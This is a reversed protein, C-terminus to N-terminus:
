ERGLLQHQRYLIMRLLSNIMQNDGDVRDGGHIMGNVHHLNQMMQSSITAPLMTQLRPQIVLGNLFLGSCKALLIKHEHLFRERRGNVEQISDEEKRRRENEESEKEMAKWENIRQRRLKERAKERGERGKEREELKREWEKELELRVSEKRKREREREAERQEYRAELERLKGLQNALFGFAKKELGKLVKRKKKPNSENLEVEEYLFGDDVEERVQDNGNYNGEGEDDGYEFGLALVKNEGGDIGAFDGDGYSGNQWSGLIWGMVELSDGGNEREEIAVAAMMDSSTNCDFDEDGTCEGGAPNDVVTDPKKIKQKVLLYQHRMNQVKTSVDKWSWQWPYAISDRVHHASNVYCAIPKYKKERTKMKALTGDAVMEGYKDILTKEEAETWKKRKPIM